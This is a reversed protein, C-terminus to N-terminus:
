TNKEHIKTENKIRMIMKSVFTAELVIQKKRCFFGLNKQKRNKVAPPELQRKLM